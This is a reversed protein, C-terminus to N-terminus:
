AELRPDPVAYGIVLHYVVQALKFALSLYRNVEEDVFAGIGTARLGVAIALLVELLGSHPEGRPVGSALTEPSRNTTSIAEGDTKVEQRRRDCPM